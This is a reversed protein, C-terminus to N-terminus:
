ALVYVTEQGARVRLRALGMKLLANMFAKAKTAHGLGEVTALEFEACPTSAYSFINNGANDWLNGATTEHAWFRCCM